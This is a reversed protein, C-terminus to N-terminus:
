PKGGFDLMLGGSTPRALVTRKAAPIRRGILDCAAQAQAQTAARCSVREVPAFAAALAAIRRRIAVPLRGSRGSLALVVSEDVLAVTQRTLASAGSPAKVLLELTAKVGGPHRRLARRGAPTPRLVFHAGGGGEALVADHADVLRASCRAIVGQRVTCGVAARSQRMAVLGRSALM